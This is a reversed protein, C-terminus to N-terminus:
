TGSWGLYSCFPAGESLIAAGVRGNYALAMSAEGSSVLELPKAGASWFVVHNKITDLKKFARDIGAKTDM